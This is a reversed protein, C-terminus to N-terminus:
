VDAEINLILSSTQTYKFHDILWNRYPSIKTLIKSGTPTFVSCYEVGRIRTQHVHGQQPVTFQKVISPIRSSTNSSRASLWAHCRQPRMRWVRLTRQVPVLVDKMKVLIFVCLVRTFCLM